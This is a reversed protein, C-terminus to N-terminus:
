VVRLSKQKFTPDSFRNECVVTPTGYYSPDFYNKMDSDKTNDLIAWYRVKIEKFTLVLKLLMYQSKTLGYACFHRDIWSYSGNSYWSMPVSRFENRVEPFHKRLYNIFVKNSDRDIKHKSPYNFASHCVYLNVLGDDRIFVRVARM